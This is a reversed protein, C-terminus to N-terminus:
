TPHITWGTREQSASYRSTSHSHSHGSGSGHWWNSRIIEDPPGAPVLRLRTVARYDLRHRAHAPILECM